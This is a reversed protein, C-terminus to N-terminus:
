SNKGDTLTRGPLTAWTFFRGFLEIGIQYIVLDGVQRCQQSTAKEDCEDTGINKLADKVIADFADDLEKRHASVANVVPTRIDDM